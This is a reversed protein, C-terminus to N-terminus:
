QYLQFKQIYEFVQSPLLDSVDAKKRIKARIESASIDILPTDLFITKNMFPETETPFNFLDKERKMVILNCLNIIQLPDKWLHFTLFNDMGIILDVKGYIRMFYKITDITFSVQKNKIEFESLIFEPYDEIALKLMNVRHHAASSEKGVKHPSIYCPVFFIKHLKRKRLVDKVTELHGFHIPDFTGGYIGISTNM